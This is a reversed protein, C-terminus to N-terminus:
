RTSWEHRVRELPATTTTRRRRWGRRTGRVIFRRARFRRRPMAVREGWSCAFADSADRHVLVWLVPLAPAAEPAPGEGDTFYVVGDPRVHGLVDDAFVARLDTGGRGEVEHVAGDFAYLRQVAVDCEAITIHVHDAMAALQRAVEALEDREISSSTDIAVLLHPPRTTRPAWVRGPIEGVRAPFRRSPRAYTHVPARARVVFMALATKWDVPHEPAALVGTLEELVRGPDRGALRMRKPVPAPTAGGSADIAERVLARTQESAGPPTPADRWSTHDDVHRPTRTAGLASQRRLSALLEYRELTSQGARV